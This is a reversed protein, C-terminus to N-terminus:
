RHFCYRNRGAQKAQYMAHDAQRLLGDPEVPTSQPYFSVGISVSISAEGHLNSDCLGKCAGLVRELVPQADAPTKLDLLIGAFEDGGIRALTDQQRLCANFRTGAQVLLADGASHGLLDNVQKFGDLDLYIVALLGESRDTMAMAQHLRDQFVARNPLGTLLDHSANHELQAQLAKRETIDSFVVVFHRTQGSTDPVARITTQAAFLSGDKRRNWLEGEWQGTALLMEWLQTFFPQDHQDSRLLGPNQGVAEGATYGTLLTFAPNTELIIGDADTVFIADGAARFVTDSLVLRGQQRTQEIALRTLNSFAQVTQIEHEDPSGPDDRYTAFTAIVQGQSDLIPESWCAGIGAERVANALTEWFPHTTVDGIIVRQLTAAATGCSGVGEAIALGDCTINYEMPLSPAAGLLLLQNEEDVLQIAARRNSLLREIGEAITRLIDRLPAHELVQELVQSHVRNTLEAEKRRTVDLCHGIYGLFAGDPGYRPQGDDQIWRFEGSHHRLRYDMSFPQRREFAETYIAICDDLDAPHVGETWGAGREQDMTRGTFALWVRNFWDCQMDLGSTWILAQGADALARFREEDGRPPEPSSTKADNQPPLSETM